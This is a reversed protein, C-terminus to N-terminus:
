HQTHEESSELFSQPYSRYKHALSTLKLWSLTCLIPGKDTSQKQVSESSSLEKFETNLQKIQSIVLM